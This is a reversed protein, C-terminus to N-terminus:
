TLSNLRKEHPEWEDDSSDIEMTSESDSLNKNILEDMLVADASSKKWMSAHSQAISPNKPQTHANSEIVLARRPVMSTLASHANSFITHSDASNFDDVVAVYEINKPLAKIIEQWEQQTFLQLNNGSLNISKVTAPISKLKAIMEDVRFHESDDINNSLDLHQVAPRITQMIQAFRVVNMDFLGNYSLDLTKIKTNDLHIAELIALIDFGQGRPDSVLWIKKVIDPLRNILEGLKKSGIRELKYSLCYTEKELPLAAIITDIDTNILDSLLKDRLVGDRFASALDQKLIDDARFM